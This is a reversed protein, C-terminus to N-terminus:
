ALATQFYHLGKLLPGRVIPVVIHFLVSIRYVIVRVNGRAEERCKRNYLHECAGLVLSAWLSNRPSFIMINMRLVDYDHVLDICLM